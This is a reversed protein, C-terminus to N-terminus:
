YHSFLLIGASRVLHKLSVQFNIDPTDAIKIAASRTHLHRINLASVLAALLLGKYPWLLGGALGTTKVKRFLWSCTDKSRRREYFLEATKHPGTAQWAAQSTKAKDFSSLPM